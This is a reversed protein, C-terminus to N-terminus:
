EKTKSILEKFSRYYPELEEKAIDLSLAGYKEDMKYELQKPIGKSSAEPLKSDMLAVTIKVINEDAGLETALRAGVELAFDHLSEIDSNYKKIEDRNFKDARIVLDEINM